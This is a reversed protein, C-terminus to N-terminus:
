GETAVTEHATPSGLVISDPAYVYPHSFADLAAGPAVPIAFRCDNREDAVDISVTNSTPDWDLTLV